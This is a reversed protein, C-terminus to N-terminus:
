VSARVPIRQFVSQMSGVTISSWRRSSRATSAAPWGASSTPWLRPPLM